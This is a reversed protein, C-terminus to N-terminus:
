CRPKLNEDKKPTPRQGDRVVVSDWRAGLAVPRFVQATVHLSVTGGPGRLCALPNRHCSILEGRVRPGDM